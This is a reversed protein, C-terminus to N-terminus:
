LYCSPMWVGSSIVIGINKSNTCQLSIRTQFTRVHKPKNGSVCNDFARSQLWTKVCSLLSWAEELLGQIFIM